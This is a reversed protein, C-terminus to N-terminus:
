HFHFIILVFSRAVVVALAFIFVNRAITAGDEIWSDSENTERDSRKRL